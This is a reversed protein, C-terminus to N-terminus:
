PNISTALYALHHSTALAISRSKTGWHATRDCFASIQQDGWSFTEGLFHESCALDRCIMRLTFGSPSESEEDHSRTTALERYYRWSGTSSYKLNVHKSPYGRGSNPHVVGYDGLRLDIEVENNLQQWLLEEFRSQTWTSTRGLQQPVSGSLLTVSRFPGTDATTRLMTLARGTTPGTIKPVYQLDLVIDIDAAPLRLRGLFDEVNVRTSDGPRVRIAGGLGLEECLNQWLSVESASAGTRLVPKFPVPYCDDFLDAPHELRETLEGLAGAPGGGFGPLHAVDSADIMLPRDYANLKRAAKETSSIQKEPASHPDLVLLPQVQRTQDARDWKYLATFEGEKARLAVLARFDGAM